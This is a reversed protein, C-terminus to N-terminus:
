KKKMFKYTLIATVISVVIFIAICAIIAETTM